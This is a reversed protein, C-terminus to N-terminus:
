SSIQTRYLCAPSNFIAGHGSDPYLILTSNPINQELIYSNVTPVVVDDNGNVILVPHHINKISSYRDSAPVIGWDAIANGQAGM